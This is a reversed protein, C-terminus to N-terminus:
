TGTLPPAPTPHGAATLIAAEGRRIMRILLTVSALTATAGLGVDISLVGQESWYVDSLEILLATEDVILAAGGGFPLALWVDLPEHRMGISAGGSLLALVIGPVFHHIHRRGIEVNGFPGTGSRIAHTVARAAAFTTGFALFLNLVATENATGGRYGARVVAATERAAIRGGRLVERPRAPTPASGRRWVHLV